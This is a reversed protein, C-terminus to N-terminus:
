NSPAGFLSGQNSRQDEHYFSVGERRRAERTTEHPINSYIRMNEGQVCNIVELCGLAILCSEVNLDAALALAEWVALAEL